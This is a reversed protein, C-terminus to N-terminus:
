PSVEPPPMRAPPWSLINAILLTWRSACYGRSSLSIRGARRLGDFTFFPTVPDIAITGAAHGMARVTELVLAIPDEHEHWCQIRGPLSIMTQLKAAEFAPTIYAIEGEAPIVVGHLRESGRLRLGTFYFSTTSADLYLAQVGQARMAQQLRVIRARREDDGIPPM